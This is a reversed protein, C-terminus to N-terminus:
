VVAGSKGGVLTVRSLTLAVKIPPLTVKGAVLAVKTVVQGVKSAVKILFSCNEKSFKFFPITKREFTFISRWTRRASRTRM